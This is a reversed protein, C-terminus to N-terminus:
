LAPPWPLCLSHSSGSLFSFNSGDLELGLQSWTLPLLTKKGGHSHQVWIPDPEATTIVWADCSPMRIWEAIDFFVCKVLMFLTCAGCIWPRTKRVDEFRRTCRGCVCLRSPSVLCPSSMTSLIDFVLPLRLCLCTCARFIWPHTRGWTKLAGCALAVSCLLNMFMGFVCLFMDSQIYIVIFWCSIMWCDIFMFHISIALSWFGGDLDSAAENHHRTWISHRMRIPDFGHGSEIAM